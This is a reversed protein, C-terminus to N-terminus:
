SNLLNVEHLKTRLFKVADRYERLETKLQTNESAINATQEEMDIERLIEDLDLDEGEKEEKDDMEYDGSGTESIPGTQAQGSGQTFSSDTNASADKEGGEGPGHGDSVEDDNQTGASEMRMPDEEDEGYEDDAAMPDEEMEGVMDAELEAIISELDLDPEEEEEGGEGGGMMADMDGMGDEDEGYEDDDEFIGESVKTGAPSELGDQDIDSPERVAPAPEKTSSTGYKQTPETAIESSSLAEADSDVKDTVEGTAESVHSSQQVADVDTEGGDDSGHGDSPVPDNLEDLDPDDEDYESENRMRAALMSTIHPTFAEELSAKAHALATERVAKADAIADRLLKNPM